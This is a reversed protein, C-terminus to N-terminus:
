RDQKILDVLALIDANDIRGDENFDFRAEAPPVTQDFQDAMLFLDDMTVRGDANFDGIKLPVDVDGDEIPVDGGGADSPVDVDGDEIPVLDVASISAPAHVITRDPGIWGERHWTVRSVALETEDTFGDGVQFSLTGLIGNGSATAQRSLVDGGIEVFGDGMSELPVLQNLFAGPAFSGDVYSVQRADFDVRVSWGSIAPADNAYLQLQYVLGATAGGIQDQQQNGQDLDFDISVPGEEPERGQCRLPIDLQGAASILTLSTEVPHNTAPAFRVRMTREEGGPITLKIPEVGFASDEPLQTSIDLPLNGPNSLTLHRWRIDCITAPLFRVEDEDAVLRSWISRGLASVEVQGLESSCTLRGQQMEVRDDTAAFRM